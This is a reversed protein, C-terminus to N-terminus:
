PDAYFAESLERRDTVGGPVITNLMQPPLLMSMTARQQQDAALDVYVDDDLLEGMVARLQTINKVSHARQWQPDRWQSETVEAWGPYRRWDPESLERRQYTYPQGVSATFDADSSDAVSTM